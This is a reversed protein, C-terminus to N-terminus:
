ALLRVKRRQNVSIELNASIFFLINRDSVDSAASVSHNSRFLIGVGWQKRCRTIGVRPRWKTRRWKFCRFRSGSPTCAHCISPQLLFKRGFAATAFTCVCTRDIPNETSQAKPRNPKPRNPHLRQSHNVCACPYINKWAWFTNFHNVITIFM